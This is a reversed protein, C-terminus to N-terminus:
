YREAKQGIADTVQAKERYDPLAEGGADALLRDWARDIVAKDVKGTLDNSCAPDVTLDFAGEVERDANLMIHHTDDIAVMNHGYRCTVYDRRRWRDTDGEILPALSQGDIGQESELGAVDYATATVDLNYVLEDCTAGAGAGNPMRVMLPLRVLGPYMAYAPKGIIDKPNDCFNTGHDSVFVVM